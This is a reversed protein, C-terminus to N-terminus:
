RRQRLLSLSELQQRQQMARRKIRMMHRISVFSGLLVTVTLIVIMAFGWSKDKNYYSPENWVNFCATLWTYGSVNTPSHCLLSQEVTKAPPEM